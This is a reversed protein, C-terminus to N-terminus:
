EGRDEIFGLTELQIAPGNFSWSAIRDLVTMNKERGPYVAFIDMDEPINELIVKLEKVKM